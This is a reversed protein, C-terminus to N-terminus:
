VTAHAKHGSHLAVIGGSLNQYEVNSFGAALMKQKLTEQDPHMRISEVLYQYSAKDNAIWEGLKPLLHFSYADYLKQLVTSEPKSFEMILAKGQPKLVRLMEAIAKEPHTVNRLGFGIIVRDFTNDAFPLAEANAEAIEFRGGLGQDFLKDRGQALMAPNIDSLVVHGTAGTKEILLRTLDGTGGALDLITQGRRVNLVTVAMRKWLRHLGLSMVDNMLDYRNAVGAFVEHVRQTKEEETVTQFGFHTNKPTDNEVMM